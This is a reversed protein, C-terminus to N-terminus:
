AALATEARQVLRRAQSVAARAAAVSMSRPDDHAADKVNLLRDLWAALQQGDPVAQRLLAVADRHSQGRSRVGAAACCVADAAAVGALVANGAAVDGRGELTDDALVLEAAALYAQAQVLRARAEARTCPVQRGAASM